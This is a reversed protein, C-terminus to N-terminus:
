QHHSRQCAFARDSREPSLIRRLLDITDGDTRLRNPKSRPLDLDLATLTGGHWRLTFHAAYEERQVTIIVEELLSRLLEKRDSNTTPPASWVKRLDTGLSRIADIQRTDVTLPHQQQRRALEAEAGALDRLRSEWEKELGRAVLRNEPEVARYRRQAKDAEYKSREVELMWQAQAADHHGQLQQAALLAADGAAPTIANLFATTVAEDVAIGGISLCYLGRGEVLTKGACHYGPASYKGRYNTRLKRGCNGCVAIGQLLAAGERVAGGGVEHPEPHTNQSLRLQNAQYTDWDIFGVHHNVLLM